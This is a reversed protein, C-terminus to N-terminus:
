GIVINRVTAYHEHVASTHRHHRVAWCLDDLAVIRGVGPCLLNLGIQHESPILLSPHCSNPTICPRVPKVERIQGNFYVILADDTSCRSKTRVQFCVKYGTQLSKTASDKQWQLIRASPLRRVKVSSAKEVLSCRKGHRGSTGKHNKEEPRATDVEMRQARCIEAGASTYEPM